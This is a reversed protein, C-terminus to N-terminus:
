SLLERIGWLAEIVESKPDASVEASVKPKFSARPRITGNFWSPYDSPFPLDWIVDTFKALETILSRWIPDVWVLGNLTVPGLITKAYSMRALAASRLERPLM